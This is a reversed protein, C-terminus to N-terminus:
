KTKPSVQVRITGKLNRVINELEALRAEMRGDGDRPSPVPTGPGRPCDCRPCECKPCDCQSKEVMKELKDLSDLVVRIQKELKDTPREAQPIPQKKLYPWCTEEVFRQVDRRGVGVGGGDPGIKYRNVIAVLLGDSARYCGSGSDGPAPTFSFELEGPEAGGPRLYRGFRTQLRGNGYGVHFVDANAETPTSAIAKPEQHIKMAVAALDNRQDVGIFHGDLKRGDHLMVQVRGPWQVFLHKCTVVASVGHESAIIVGSGLFRGEVDSIKVTAKVAQQVLSKEIYPPQQCRGGPCPAGIVPVALALLLATAAAVARRVVGLVVGIM